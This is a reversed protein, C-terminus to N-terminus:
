PKVITWVMFRQFTRSAHGPYVFGRQFANRLCYVYFGKEYTTTRTTRTTKTCSHHHETTVNFNLLENQPWCGRFGNTVEQMEDDQSLHVNCIGTGNTSFTRKCRTRIATSLSSSEVMFINYQIIYVGKNNDNMKNDFLFSQMLYYTYLIGLLYVQFPNYM